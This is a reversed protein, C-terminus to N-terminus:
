RCQVYVQVRKSIERGIERDAQDPSCLFARQAGTHQELHRLGARGLQFLSDKIEESGRTM